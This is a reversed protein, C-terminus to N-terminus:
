IEEQKNLTFLTLKDYKEKAQPKSFFLSISGILLYSIVVPFGVWQFSLELPRGQEMVNSCVYWIAMAFTSGATFFCALRVIYYALNRRRRLYYLGVGLILTIILPVIIWSLPLRGALGLPDGVKWEKTIRKTITYWLVCGTNLGWLFGALRWMLNSNVRRSLVAFLFMPTIISGFISFIVGAEVISQGLWNSTYVVLLGLMTGIIGFFGTAYRSVKVQKAEKMEPEFYKQHFEKLWITSLSNIVSDLTSMVAALMAAMILGPIPPPLQTSIFVFFASDGSTIRSDPNLSYYTFIALGIFWLICTMPITILTATIRAKLSAKYNKVSLLRQITVQDAASEYIPGLIAGLLMVWLTLRAYPNIQYFSTKWFESLGHGHEFAYAVANSAGGDIRMCLVLIVIAVGGVLTIFQLMDTWVVAKMGGMVTYITGVVGVIIITLWAPWGAAGEFITSTAFLVMGLYFVRGYTYVVAVLLRLKSDYRKELYEFPTFSKLIFYFRVFICFTAIAVLHYLPQTIFLTLGHNYVEGPIMVLSFTSLLSMVVSVAVSIWPLNRGGLLYDTATNENRSCYYGIILTVLFYIIIIGYDLLHLAIGTDM